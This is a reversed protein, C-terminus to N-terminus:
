WLDRGRLHCKLFDLTPPPPPLCHTPWGSGSHSLRGLGTEQSDDKKSGEKGKCWDSIMKNEEHREDECGKIKAGHEPEQKSIHGEIGCPFLGLDPFCPWFTCSVSSFSDLLLDNRLARHCSCCGVGGSRELNLLSTAFAVSAGGPDSLWGKVGSSDRRKESM